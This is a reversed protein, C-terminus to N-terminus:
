LAAPFAIECEVHECLKFAKRSICYFGESSLNETTTKARRTRAQGLFQVAWHVPVRKRKRRDISLAMARTHGIGNDPIMCRIPIHQLFKTFSDALSCNGHDFRPWRQELPPVEFGLDNNARHTPLQPERKRIPLDLFQQHFSSEGSVM